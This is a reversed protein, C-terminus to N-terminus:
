STWSSAASSTIKRVRQRRDLPLASRAGRLACLSLAPAHGDRHAWPLCLLVQAVVAAVAAAVAVAACDHTFPTAVRQLYM